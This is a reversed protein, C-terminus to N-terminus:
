ARSIDLASEQGKSLDRTDDALWTTHCAIVVLGWGPRGTISAKKPVRELQILKHHRFAEVALDVVAWTHQALHHKM